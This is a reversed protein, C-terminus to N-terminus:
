TKIATDHDVKRRKGKPAPEMRPTYTVTRTVVERIHRVSTRAERKSCCSPTNPAVSTGTKPTVNGSCAEAYRRAKLAADWDFPSRVSRSSWPSMPSDVPACNSRAPSPLVGLGTFGPGSAPASMPHQPGTM